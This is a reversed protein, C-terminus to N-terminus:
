ECLVIGGVEYQAIPADDVAGTVAPEFAIDGDAVSFDDGDTLQFVPGGGAGDVYLVLDDCRSENVYMGVDFAIFFSVRGGIVEDEIAYSGDNCSVAAEGFGIDAAIEGHEITQLGADIDSGEDTM